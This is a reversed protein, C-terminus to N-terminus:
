DSDPHPNLSPVPFDTTHRRAWAGDRAAVSPYPGCVDLEGGPLVSVRFDPQEGGFRIGTFAPEKSALWVPPLRELERRLSEREAPNVMAAHLSLVPPPPPAPLLLHLAYNNDLVLLSEGPRYVSRLDAALAEYPSQPEGRWRGTM